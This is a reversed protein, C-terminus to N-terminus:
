SAARPRNPGSRSREEIRRSVRPYAADCSEARSRGGLAVPLCLEDGHGSAFPPKPTDPDTGRAGRPRHEHPGPAPLPFHRHRRKLAGGAARSVVGGRGARVQRERREHETALGAAGALRQVNAHSRRGPGFPSLRRTSPLRQKLTWQM